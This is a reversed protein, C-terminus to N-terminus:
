TQLTITADSVPADRLDTIVGEITATNQAAVAPTFGSFAFVSFVFALVLVSFLPFAQRIRNMIGGRGDRAPPSPQGNANASFRICVAAFEAPRRAQRGRAHPRGM